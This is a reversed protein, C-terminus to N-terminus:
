GFLNLKYFSLEFDVKGTLLNITMRDIEYYEGNIQVKDNNQIKSLIKFPLIASCKVKRTRPSFIKLVDDEYHRKYLTQKIKTNTYEDIEEGFVLSNRDITFSQRHSPANFNNSIYDSQYGLIKLNYEPDNVTNIYHILKMDEALLTSVFPTKFGSRDIIREYIANDFSVEVEAPEGTYVFEETIKYDLDGYGKKFRKRYEEMLFSDNENFSFKFQNPIEERDVNKTSINVYPTIDWLVGKNRWELYQYFYYTNGKPIVVLNFMKIMSTIVEIQTMNPVFQTVNFGGRIVLISRGVEYTQMSAGAYESVVCKAGISFKYKTVLYFRLTGRGWDNRTFQFLHDGRFFEKGSKPDFEEMTNQDVAVIRYDFDKADNPVAVDIYIYAYKYGWRNYKIDLFEAGGNTWSMLYKNERGEVDMDCFLYMKAIVDKINQSLVININNSASIRDIVWNLLISPNLLTWDLGIALNKLVETEPIERNSDYFYRVTSSLLSFIIRGSDFVTTGFRSAVERLKYDFQVASFDLDRINKDGLANTLSSLDGVFQLKYSEVKDMKVVSGLVVVRGSRFLVTDLTLEAKITKRIDISNSVGVSYFHKMIANNTTTAPITFQQSYDSFVKSPDKLDKTIANIIVSENGYLDVNRGDIILGLKM